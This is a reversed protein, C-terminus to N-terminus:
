GLLKTQTTTAPANLGLGGTYMTSAAGGAASRSKSTISSQAVQPNAITAPAAAPPIPPM